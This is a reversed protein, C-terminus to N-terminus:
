LLRAFAEAVLRRLCRGFYFVNLSGGGKAKKSSVRSTGPMLPNVGLLERLRADSVLRISFARSGRWRAPSSFRRGHDDFPPPHFPGLRAPARSRLAPTSDRGIAASM